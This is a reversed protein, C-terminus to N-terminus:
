KSMQEVWGDEAPRKGLPRNLLNYQDLLKPLLTRIECPPRKHQVIYEESNVCYRVSQRLLTNAYEKGTLDLVAWSRWALVVRHVDVEDQVAFQLHNFAEGIPGQALAAFVGEAAKYDARRTAERLLEGGPRGAPLPAPEVAHMVEKKSCGVEHMRTTNRHVVKLVPLAKREESLEHSMQYAPTLAMFAHYGNYDQGGFTRANALAAGAVITRLDTGSKMKDILIPLLKDAPTDQMLGVLPELDGFSLVDPGAGARASALGLDFALAPGVSAILMGRGVDALFDRRSFDRM